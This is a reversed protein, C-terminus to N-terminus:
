RQASRPEAKMSDPLAIGDWGGGLAKYLAIGALCRALASEAEADQAAYLQTQRALVPLFGAEGSRHRSLAEDFAQRDDTVQAGVAVHHAQEAAQNSLADEVEAFAELVTQQYALLAADKDARAADVESSLRGGSYLTQTGTLGLQWALSAVNFAQHLSSTTFGFDLPIIFHPYLNAIAVGVNANALAYEREARRIDPRRAIVESPLSAPLPPPAPVAPDGHLAERGFLEPTRGLLTALAHLLDDSRAQLPPISAEVAYVRADAETVELHSREGAQYAHHALQQARRAADLSEQAIRIRAEATRFGAYDTAVAAMLSVLTGRQADVSAGVAAEASEKRRRTEGFIDLEWSADFGLQWYHYDGVAAPPPWKLTQTQRRSEAAGGIGITPLDASAVVRVQDQAALIRKGAIKLDYNGAIAQEILRSLVPDHFSGWWSNLAEASAPSEEAGTWHQPVATEPPQYDPGVTCAGLMLVAVLPSVTTKIM